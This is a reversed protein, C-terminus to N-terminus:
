VRKRKNIKLKKNGLLLSIKEGFIEKKNKIGAVENKIDAVETKIKTVENSLIKVNYITDLDYFKRM